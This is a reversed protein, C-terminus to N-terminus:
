GGAVRRPLILTFTSGEGLRSALTIRGGLMAALRRSISLGLGTGSYKRTSSDDAQRFDEFIREQDAEAIGIGTDSVAISVEDTARNHAGAVRIAGEPTFKLANGLLNLLIQKVKQRDSRVPPIDPSVAASVVLKSRAIIPEIQAMVEAVLEPLSFEEIHVPMKGAEIRALDLLDNIISLLQRANTDVRALSRRQPEALEGYVGQLLMSTYGLIANLPTRFEHSMNALFQSKLQSAKELEAQQRKLLENQQALEATAERVKERLEESARQLQEYLRAKEIAETRDHLITVVATLEGQDSLVKGAVAEVPVPSGTQPDLLTLEGRWRLGPAAYLSSLFSSLVADNASVRRQAEKDAAEPRLTFLREAPANTLVINGAPDTVLIPDVVSDIILNLRDREARVDAEAVRLRRYNEAIEDMARRLDTVDHLISVIGTGEMPDEVVASLLEFLLDSGDNPDVLVLERRLAGQEEVARRRGESDAERTVFLSEARANAVVLRGEADTLLIPDPVANILGQLLAREHRFRREGEALLLMSRLRVLRHGLVQAAWRLDAGVEESGNVALLLGVALRDSVELAGLPVAHFAVGGLPTPPHRRRGARAPRFFVPRSGALVSVLPHDRTELDVGFRAVKGPAVGYGATGRLRTAGADVLACVAQRVGAHEGLWEVAAQACEAPDDCELLFEVLALRAEAGAAPASAAATPGRLATRVSAPRAM